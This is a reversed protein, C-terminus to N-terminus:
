DKVNECINNPLLCLAPSYLCKVVLLLHHQTVSHYLETNFFFDAFHFHFGHTGIVETRYWDKYHTTYLTWNSSCSSFTSKLVVHADEEMLNYSAKKKQFRLDLQVNETHWLLFLYGVCFLKSTTTSQLIKKIAM